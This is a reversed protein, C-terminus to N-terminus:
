AELALRGKASIAIAFSGPPDRFSQVTVLEAELLENRLQIISIPKIGATAPIRDCHLGYGPPLKALERLLRLKATALFSTSGKGRKLALDARSM